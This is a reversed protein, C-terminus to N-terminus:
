YQTFFLGIYSLTPHPLNPNQRNWHGRPRLRLDAAEWRSLNHTRIGSPPMSTQQSHRTNYPLPRQSPSIVRGSSDLRSHHTTTHSRSVEYIFLSQSVSSQQALFFTSKLNDYFSTIQTEYFSWPQTDMNMMHYCFSEYPRLPSFLLINCYEFSYPLLISM